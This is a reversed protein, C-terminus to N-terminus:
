PRLTPRGIGAAGGRRRGRSVAALMESPAASSPEPATASSPSPGVFELIEEAARAAGDTRTYIEAIRAAAPRATPDRLVDAVAGALKTAVARAPVARAAGAQVAVQVNWQQEPQLPVGVFPLGSALATQVSGQGGAIVALDVRPMIRHSPLFPEVVVDAQAVYADELDALQHVTSAVLARAGAARVGRVAARVLEPKSSTLAVYAVPGPGTLMAEARDSIPFDLQAYLPGAYRMRTSPRLGARRPRWAAMEAPPIGLVEPAETVLTLDGSLLAAFSPVPEVGLEAAVRNFGGIYGKYRYPGMNAFARGLRGPLFRAFAPAGVDMPPLLGRDFVPAVWSGAHSTITPIGALRSSLLTTLQFGTVVARAGIAGFYAHEAAVSRRIEDDTWMSQKPPGIGPGDAILKRSREDTVVPELLVHEIGADRIVHLHSGGHTAMTVAAGASRLARYIAIMRSTESLYACNAMCVIM